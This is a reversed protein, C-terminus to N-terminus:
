ESGGEAPGVARMVDADAGIYFVQPLSNKEPKLVQVSNTALLRSIESEPNNMDGFVM